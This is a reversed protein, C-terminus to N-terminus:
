AIPHFALYVKVFIGGSCDISEVPCGTGSSDRTLNIEIISFLEDGFEEFSFCLFMIDFQDEAPRAVRSTAPLDFSIVLREVLFEDGKLFEV